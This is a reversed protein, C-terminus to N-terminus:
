GRRSGWPREAIDEWIYRWEFVQDLSLYVAFHVTGWFFAFLGLPRRLKVLVNWGTVRRIPTVALTVLLLTLTWWGAHDMLKQIPDAGLGFLGDRLWWAVQALPFLGLAWVGVKLLLTRRKRDM